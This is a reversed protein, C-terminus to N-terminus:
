LSNNQAPQLDPSSPSGINTPHPRRPCSFATIRHRDQASLYLTQHQLRSQGRASKRNQM